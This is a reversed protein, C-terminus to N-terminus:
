KIYNAIFKIITCPIKTQLLKRILTHINITDFAKSMDFAATITRAPTVMQNFGLPSDPYSNIKIQQCRNHLSLDKSGTSQSRQFRYASITPIRLSLDNSSHLCTPHKLYCKKCISRMTCTRAVHGKKLCQFCLGKKKIYESREDPRKEMFSYCDHMSHNNKNCYSCKNRHEETDIAFSERSQM